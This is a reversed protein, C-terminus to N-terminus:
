TISAPKLMIPSLSDYVVNYNVDLIFFHNQGPISDLVEDYYSYSMNLDAASVGTLNSANLYQSFTIIM